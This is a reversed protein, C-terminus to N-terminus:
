NSQHAHTYFLACWLATKLFLGVDLLLDFSRTSGSLFLDPKSWTYMTPHPVMFMFVTPTPWQWDPHMYCTDNTKIAIRHPMFPSLARWNFLTAHMLCSFHLKCSMVVWMNILCLVRAFVLPDGQLYTSNLQAHLIAITAPATLWSTCCLKSWQQEWSVGHETPLTFLTSTRTKRTRPRCCTDYLALASSPM